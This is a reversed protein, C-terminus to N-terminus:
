PQAVRLEMRECYLAATVRQIQEAAAEAKLHAIKFIGLNFFNIRALETQRNPSLFVLAGNKEQSDANNGKVVFREFWDLWTAAANEALTVALNPFEIRGPEKLFDRADGIQDAVAHQKVTFPDIRSVRTCDLGDIELRFNSPLWMDQT